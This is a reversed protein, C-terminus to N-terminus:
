FAGGRPWIKAIREVLDHTRLSITEETWGEKSVIDRNLLMTSYRALESCKGTSGLGRQRAEADTWPRNSLSPNLSDTVLTLNGLSQVAADRSVAELKPDELGPLTWHDRWAQPMVHEITLSSRPCHGDETKPGRLDDEMAELVMRLRARTITRYIPASVLADLVEQDTPWAGSEGERTMLFQEVIDGVFEPDGNELIGILDLMLRNINRTTWRCLMRRVFWGELARLAAAMQLQPIRDVPQGFLWLLAPATAWQEMVNLVRYVFQGEISFPPFQNLVREFVDAHHNIDDLVGRLDADTSRVYESFDLFIRDAPVERITRMTLWYNFFVDIRPRKLRGQVIERRWYDSDFREWSSKYLSEVDLGMSEAERFISNKILDAALLPEGRYNLTEFIVQANDEPELDIVVVRLYQMLAKALSSLRAQAKDSDGSVDAWASIADMFFQHAQLLPSRAEAKSPITGNTMATRFADRDRNTPWVKFVEDPAAVLDDDNLVLKRLSASDLTAGHVSIVEQAADLVIQLTTLRQQGDIVSRKVITGTPVVEQDLVIAGLFHPAAELHHQGHKALEAERLREAVVRIDDWLPEWQKDQKWVYPRQFLPVMYQVQHGFLKFPTLTSSKM